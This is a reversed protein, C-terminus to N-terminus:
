GTGELHINRCSICSLCKQTGEFKYHSRAMKKSCVKCNPTLLKHPGNIGIQSLEARNMAAFAEERRNAENEERIFTGVTEIDQTKFIKLIEKIYTEETIVKLALDKDLEKKDRHIAIKDALQQIQKDEKTIEGPKVCTDILYDNDIQTDNKRKEIFKFGHVTNQHRRLNNFYGCGLECMNKSSATAEVQNKPSPDQDLSSAESYNKLENVPAHNPM